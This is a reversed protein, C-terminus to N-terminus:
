FAQLLLRKLVTEIQMKSDRQVPKIQSRHQECRMSRFNQARYDDCRSLEDRALIARSLKTFCDTPRAIVFAFLLLGTFRRIVAASSEALQIV